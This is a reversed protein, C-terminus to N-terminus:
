SRSWLSFIGVFEGFRELAEGEGGGGGGRGKIKGSSSSEVLELFEFQNTICFWKLEPLRFM